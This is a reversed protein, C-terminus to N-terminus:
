FLVMSSLIIMLSVAVGSATLRGTGNERFLRVRRSNYLIAIIGSEHVAIDNITIDAVDEVRTWNFRQEEVPRGPEYDVRLLERSNVDIGYARAHNQQGTPRFMKFGRSAIETLQGEKFEYIGTHTTNVVLLIDMYHNDYHTAGPLLTINSYHQISTINTLFSEPDIRKISKQCVWYTNEGCIKSSLEVRNTKCSPIDLSKLYEGKGTLQRVKSSTNDIISNDKAQYCSRPSHLGSAFPESKSYILQTGNLDFFDARDRLDGITLLQKGVFLLKDRSSSLLVEGLYQLASQNGEPTAEPIEVKIPITQDSVDGKYLSELNLNMSYHGPESGTYSIVLNMCDGPELSFVDQIIFPKHVVGQSANRGNHYEISGLNWNSGSAVLHPTLYLLADNDQSACVVNNTSYSEKVDGLNVYPFISFQAFCPIAPFLLMLLLNCLYKM